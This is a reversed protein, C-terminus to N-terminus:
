CSGQKQLKRCHARGCRNCRRQPVLLAVAQQPARQCCGLSARSRTTGKAPAPAAPRLLFTGQVLDHQEQRQLHQQQQQEQGQQQIHSVRGSSSSPAVAATAGAAAAAAESLRRCRELLEEGVDDEESDSDASPTSLVKHRRQALQQPQQGSQRDSSSGEVEIGAQRLPQVLRQGNSAAARELEWAGAAADAGAAAATDAQQTAGTLPLLQLQVRATLSAGGQSAAAGDLLPYSGSVSRQQLQQEEDPGAGSGGSGGSSWLLPALDIEATGVLLATRGTTATSGGGSGGSRAGSAAAAAAPQKYVSVM